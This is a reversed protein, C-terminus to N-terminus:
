EYIDGEYKNGIVRIGKGNPQAMTINFGCTKENWEVTKIYKERKEPDKPLTMSMIIIRDGEFVPIGRWAFPFIGNGFEKWFNRMEISLDRWKTQDYVGTFLMIDVIWSPYYTGVTDIYSFNEWPHVHTTLKFPADYRMQHLEKNDSCWARVRLNEPNM